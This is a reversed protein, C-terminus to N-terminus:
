SDLIRVGKLLNSLTAVLLAYITTKVLGIFPTKKGGLKELFAFVNEIILRSFPKEGKEKALKNQQTLERQRKIADRAIQHDKHFRTRKSAAIPCKDAKPCRWCTKLPFEFFLGDKGRGQITINNLCTLTNKKKDYELEYVSLEEESLGRFPANLKVGNGKATKFTEIYGYASDGDLEKALVKNKKQQKLIPKLQKDDKESAPTVEIATIIGSKTVTAHKKYGFIKKDKTKSGLKADKDVLTKISKPTQKRNGNKDLNEYLIQKLLELGEGKIQNKELVEVVQVARSVAKEFYKKKARENDPRFLPRPKSYYELKEDSLGTQRFLKKTLRRDLGKVGEKIGQYILSTVSPLAAHAIIEQSDIAQRDKDSLLDKEVLQQLVKNFLARFRGVGLRTRFRSLTSYDFSMDEVPIGLFHKIEIDYRAVREMAPDSLGRLRQILLAKILVVPDHGPRGNDPCYADRVEDYIFDFDFHENIKELESDKDILREYIEDASIPERKIVRKRYMM